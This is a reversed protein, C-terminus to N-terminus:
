QEFVEVVPPLKGTEDIFYLVTGNTVSVTNAGLSGSGDANTSLTANLPTALSLGSPASVDRVGQLGGSSISAVGSLDPM